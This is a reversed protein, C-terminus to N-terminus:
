ASLLNSFRRSKRHRRDACRPTAHPQRFVRSTRHGNCGSRRRHAVLWQYRSYHQSGFLAFAEQPLRKHAALMTDNMELAKASDAFAEISHAVGNVPGVDFSKHYKGAFLPSDILTMLSTPAFVATGRPLQSSQGIQLASAYDWGPPLTIQAGVQLETMKSPIPYLIFNSWEIIALDRSVSDGDILFDFTVGVSTAPEPVVVHFQDREVADRQWDLDAKAHPVTIHLDVLNVAKGDPGHYGPLWRPLALTLPGPMVTVDEHVHVIQRSVDSADVNLRIPGAAIARTALMAIVVAPLRLHMAASPVAHKGM